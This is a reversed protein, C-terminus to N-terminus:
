GGNQGSSRTGLDTQPVSNIREPLACAMDPRALMPLAPGSAYTRQLACCASSLFDRASAIAPRPALAGRFAVQRSAVSLRFSISRSQTPLRTSDLPCHVMTGHGRLFGHIGGPPIAHLVHGEASNYRNPIPRDLSFQAHGAPVMGTSLNLGLALGLCSALAGFVTRSVLM